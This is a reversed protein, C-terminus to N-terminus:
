VTTMRLLGSAEVLVLTLAIMLSCLFVTKEAKRGTVEVLINLIHGPKQSEKNQVWYIVEHDWKWLSIAKQPLM